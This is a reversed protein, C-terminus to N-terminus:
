SFAVLGGAAAKASCALVIVAELDLALSTVDVAELARGAGVVCASGTIWGHHSDVRGTRGVEAVASGVVEVRSRGGTRHAGGLALSALEVGGEAEGAVGGLESDDVAGV